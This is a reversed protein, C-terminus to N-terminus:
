LCCDRERHELCLSLPCQTDATEHQKCREAGPFGVCRAQLRRKPCPTQQVPRQLWSTLPSPWIGSSSHSASPVDVDVDDRRTVTWRGDWGCWAKCAAPGGYVLLWAGRTCVATPARPQLPASPQSHSGMRQQSLWRLAHTLFVDWLSAEGGLLQRLREMSHFGQANGLRAPPCDTQVPRRQTKRCLVQSM